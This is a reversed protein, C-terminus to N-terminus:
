FSPLLGQSGDASGLAPADNREEGLSYEPLLLPYEIEQM